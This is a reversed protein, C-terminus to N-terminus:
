PQTDSHDADHSHGLGVTETLTWTGDVGTAHADVEFCSGDPFVLRWPGPFTEIGWTNAEGNPDVTVEWGTAPVSGVV